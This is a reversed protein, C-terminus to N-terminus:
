RPNSMAQWCSRHSQNGTKPVKVLRYVRPQDLDIHARFGESNHVYLDLDAGDSTLSDYCTVIDVDLNVRDDVELCKNKGNKTNKCNESRIESRLGKGRRM